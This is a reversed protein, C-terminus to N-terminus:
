EKIQMDQTSGTGSVPATGTSDTVIGASNLGSERIDNALFVGFLLILIVPILVIYVTRLDPPPFMGGVFGKILYYLVLSLVISGAFCNIVLISSFVIEQFISLSFKPFVMRFFFDLVLMSAGATFYGCFVFATIGPDSGPLREPLVITLGTIIFTSVAVVFLFMLLSLSVFGNDIGFVNRLAFYIYDNSMLDVGATLIALILSVPIGIGLLRRFDPRNKDM